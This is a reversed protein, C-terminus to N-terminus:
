FFLILQELVLQARRDGWAEKGLELQRDVKDAIM